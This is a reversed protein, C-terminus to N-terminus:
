SSNERRQGVRQLRSLGDLIEREEGSIERVRELMQVLGRHRDKHCLEGKFNSYLTSPSPVGFESPQIQLLSQVSRSSPISASTM